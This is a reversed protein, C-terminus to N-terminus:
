KTLGLLRAVSDVDDDFMAFTDRAALFGASEEVIWDRIVGLPLPVGRYALPSTTRSTWTRDVVRGQRDVCWAHSLPWRPGTRHTAVGEYYTFLDPHASALECSNWACCRMKGPSIEPPLPAPEFPVGYQILLRHHPSHSEEELAGLLLGHPNALPEIAAERDVSGGM